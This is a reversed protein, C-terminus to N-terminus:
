DIPSQDIGTNHAFCRVMIFHAKDHSVPRRLKGGPRVCVQIYLWLLHSSAQFKASLFYLFQVAHIQTVFVFTRILQVILVCIILGETKVYAFVM